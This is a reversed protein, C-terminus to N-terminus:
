GGTYQGLNYSNLMPSYEEYANPQGLSPTQLPNFQYGLYNVPNQASPTLLGPNITPNQTVPLGQLPDTIYTPQLVNGMNPMAGSNIGPTVWQSQTESWVKGAPATSTVDPSRLMQALNFLSNM